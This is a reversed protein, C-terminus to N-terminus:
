SVDLCGGGWCVCVGGQLSVTVAWTLGEILQQQQPQRVHQQQHFPLTRACDYSEVGCPISDLIFHM